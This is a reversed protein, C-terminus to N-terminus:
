SLSISTFIDEVRPEGRSLPDLVYEQYSRQPAWNPTVHHRSPSGGTSSANLPSPLLSNSYEQVEREVGLETFQSNWRFHHVIKKYVYMEHVHPRQLIADYTAGEVINIHPVDEALISGFENSFRPPPLPGVRGAPLFDAHTFSLSPARHILNPLRSPLTAITSHKDAPRAAALELSDKVTSPSGITFVRNQATIMTEDDREISLYYKNNKRNKRVGLAWPWYSNFRSWPVPEFDRFRVIRRRQSFGKGKDAKGLGKDSSTGGEEAVEEVFANKLMLYLLPLLEYGVQAYTCAGFASHRGVDAAGGWSYGEGGDDRSVGSRYVSSLNYPNLGFVDQESSTVVGEESSGESSSSRKRPRLRCIWDLSGSGGASTVRWLHQWRRYENRWAALIDRGKRGRMVFATGHPLLLTVGQSDAPAFVVGGGNEVSLREPFLSELSVEHAHWPADTDLFSFVFDDCRTKDADEGFLRQVVDYAEFIKVWYPPVVGEYKSTELFFYAYNHRTAYAKNVRRFAPAWPTLADARGDYSLVAGRPRDACTAPRDDTAQNAFTAVALSLFVFFAPVRWLIRLPSGRPGGPSGWTSWSVSQDYFVVSHTVAGASHPRFPLASNM